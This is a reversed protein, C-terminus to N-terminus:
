DDDGGGGSICKAFSVFFSLRLARSVCWFESFDVFNAFAFSFFDRVGKSCRFFIAGLDCKKM